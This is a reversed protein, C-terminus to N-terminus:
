EGLLFCNLRARRCLAKNEEKDVRSECLLRQAAEYYSERVIVFITQELTMM